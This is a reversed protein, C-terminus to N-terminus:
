VVSGASQERYVAPEARDPVLHIYYKRTTPESTHPIINNNVSKMTIINIYTACKPAKLRHEVGSNARFLCVCVRM